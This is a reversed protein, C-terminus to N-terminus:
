KKLFNSISRAAIAGEAAATIVQKFNDSGTTSDGASWVGSVSTAADSQIIIYGDDDVDVGLKRLKNLRHRIM